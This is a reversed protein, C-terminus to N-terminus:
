REGELREIRGRNSQALQLIGDYKRSVDAFKERLDALQADVDDFRAGNAKAASAHQEANEERLGDVVPAVVSRQLRVMPTLWTGHEDRGWTRHWFWGVFDRIWGARRWATAFVLLAGVIAAFFIFDNGHDRWAEPV